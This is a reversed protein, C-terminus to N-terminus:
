LHGTRRLPGIQLKRYQRRQGRRRRRRLPLFLVYYIFQLGPDGNPKCTGQAGLPDSM